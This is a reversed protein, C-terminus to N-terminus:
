YKTKPTLNKYILNLLCPGKNKDVRKRKKKGPLRYAKQM